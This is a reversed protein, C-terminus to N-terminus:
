NDTARGGGRGGEQGGGSDLVKIGHESGGVAVISIEASM